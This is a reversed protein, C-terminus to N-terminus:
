RSQCLDEMRMGKPLKITITVEDQESDGLVEREGKIGVDIASIADRTSIDKSEKLRLAKSGKAAMHAYRRVHKARRNVEENEVRKVVAQTVKEARKPWDLKRRYYMVTGKAVNCTLAVKNVSKTELWCAYMEEIKKDTLRNSM